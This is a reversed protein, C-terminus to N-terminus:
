PAVLSTADIQQSEDELMGIVRGDRTVDVPRFPSASDTPSMRPLQYPGPPLNLPEVTGDSALLGM